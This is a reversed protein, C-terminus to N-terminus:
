KERGNPKPVAAKVAANGTQAVISDGLWLIQGPYIPSKWSLGNRALVDATAVGHGIAIESVTDGAKVRYLASLPQPPQEEVLRKSRPRKPGVAHKPEVSTVSNQSDESVLQQLRSTLGGVLSIPVTAIEAFSRRRPSRHRAGNAM